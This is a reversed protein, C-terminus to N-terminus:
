GVFTCVFCISFCISLYVLAASSMVEKISPYIGHLFVRLIPRVYVHCLFLLDFPFFRTVIRSLCTVIFLMYQMFLMLPSLCIQFTNFKKHSHCYQPIVKHYHLDMAFLSLTFPLDHPLISYTQTLFSLTYINCAFHTILYKMFHSVIETM